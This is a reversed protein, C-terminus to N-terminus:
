TQADESDDYVCVVVQDDVMSINARISELCRKVYQPRNKTVIAVNGIRRGRECDDNYRILSEESVLAGLEVFHTLEQKTRALKSKPTIKIGEQRVYALLESLVSKIWRSRVKNHLSELWVVMQAHCYAAAGDDLTAPGRFADLQALASVSVEHVPQGSRGRLWFLESTRPLIDTHSRVYRVELGHLRQDDIATNTPM